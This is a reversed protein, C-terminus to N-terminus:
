KNEYLKLIYLTVKPVRSYIDVDGLFEKSDVIEVKYFQPIKEKLGLYDIVVTDKQIINERTLNESYFSLFEPAYYQFQRYTYSALIVTGKASFNDKIYNVAAITPPTQARFRKLQSFGQQFLFFFTIVFVVRYVFSMSRNKLNVLPYSAVIVFIPLLPLTYRPVELNYIFILPVFYSLTWVLIFQFNYRKLNKRTLFIYLYSISVIILLQLSYAIKLLYFLKELRNTFFNLSKIGQGFFSDHSIIYSAIWKYSKVFENSGTLYITPILWICVGITFAFFCYIIKKVRFDRILFISLLSIIIPFETFRIGLIFGGLFSLIPLNKRGYLFLLYTFVLLSFLGPMNTLAVESMMWGIPIFIFLFSSIIALNKNKFLKKVLLFFPIVSLSGLISSLLTLSLTDNKLLSLLFKGMLIYLFYGPAHPQNISIDFNHMALAFQVSDWDELWPSLWYLRLVLALLFIILIPYNERIIKKFKEM